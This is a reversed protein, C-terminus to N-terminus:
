RVNVCISWTYVCVHVFLFSAYIGEYVAAAALDSMGGGGGGV